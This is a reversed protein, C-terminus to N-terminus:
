SKCPETKQSSDEHQMVAPSHAVDVVEDKISQKGDCEMDRLRQEYMQRHVRLTEPEVRRASAAMLEM